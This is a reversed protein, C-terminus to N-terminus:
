LSTKQPAPSRPPIAVLDKVTRNGLTTGTAEDLERMVADLEPMSLYREEIARSDKGPERIARMVELISITEIDKAPLYEPPEAGSKLMLGKIELRGLVEQVPELPLELRKVLSTLTWREKNRYYSDGILYMIFLALKEELRNNLLISEKRVSIFHPYQHYFAVKAGVLLILWSLYIWMMFLILIAFGSYIAVHKASSVIISAFALGATEWLVGAFFGGVLASRFQVKTHPVFFYICAFATGVFLFPVVKGGLYAATGFPEISLLKHMFTTSMISATLGIASFILVPGVLITSLYDSFKRTFSRPTTVLWIYNFTNEVKRILSIVTYLLLALGISGLVGVKLNEVFGIINGTIKEGQPGLPALFNQLIPEIQNHVGFAKLVSFSVALLPVLSLLTTYVLSMARLTIQGGSFERVGVYIVRLFKILSSRFVTLSNVDVSWLKDQLLRNMRERIQAM